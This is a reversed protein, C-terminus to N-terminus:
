AGQGAANREFALELVRRETAREVLTSTADGVRDLARDAADVGAAHGEALVVAASSDVFAVLERLSDPLPSTTRQGAHIYILHVASGFTAAMALAMCGAALQAGYEDGTVKWFAFVGAFLCTFGLLILTMVHPHRQLWTDSTRWARTLTTM